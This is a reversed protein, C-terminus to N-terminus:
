QKREPHVPCSGSDVPRGTFESALPNRRVGCRCVPGKPDWPNWGSETRSRALSLAARREGEDPKIAAWADRTNAYAPVLLFRGQGPQMARGVIGEGQAAAASRSRTSFPGLVALHWNEQDWSYNCLVALRNHQARVADLATILEDALDEPSKDTNTEDELIAALATIERRLSM